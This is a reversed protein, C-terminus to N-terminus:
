AAGGAERTVVQYAVSLAAVVFVTALMTVVSTLFHIQPVLTLLLAPVVMILPFIVVVLFMLLQHNQTLQWSQMFTIPQDAAIAPFVLSLRGIIWCMLGIMLMWGIVPIFILLAFPVMILGLGFGYLVFNTERATWRYLGWEGVSSAGLLTIRHTTIAFITQALLGLFGIIFKSVQSSEPSQLMNLALYLLFPWALAKALAVRHEYVLGFAGLVVYSFNM